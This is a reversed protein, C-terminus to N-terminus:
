CEYNLIDMVLGQLSNLSGRAVDLGTKIQRSKNSSTLNTDFLYVSSDIEKDAVIGWSSVM